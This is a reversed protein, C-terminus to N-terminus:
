RVVVTGDKLLEVTQPTGPIQHVATIVVTDDAADPEPRNYHIGAQD